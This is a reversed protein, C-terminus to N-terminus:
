LAQLPIPVLTPSAFLRESAHIAGGLAAASFGLTSLEVRCREASEALSNEQLAKTAEDMVWPAVWPIFGALVIVEPNFTDIINALGIGLWRGFKKLGKIAIPNNASARAIVPALKAEPSLRRDRLIGSALDPVADHLLARLSVTTEWCGVSGCACQLGKPQVTTHGVEGGAGSAGRFVGGDIIIGAGVGNVAMLYVLHNTGAHPGVRYEALAGLNAENDITIPLHPGLASQLEDGLPAMRWGLNPAQTVVGHEMDVIGPVAVTLGVVRRGGAEVAEIARRLEKVLTPLLQDFALSAGSIQRRRQYVCNGALDNAIVATFGVDMEMGLTVLQSGDLELMTAPRGVRQDAEQGGERVLGRDILDAVLSSVTARTLGSVAAVGARSRPGQSALLRLVLSLNHRRVHLHEVPADPNTVGRVTALRALLHHSGHAAILLGPM